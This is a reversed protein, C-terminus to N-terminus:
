IRGKADALLLESRELIFKEYDDGFLSPPCLAASLTADVDGEMQAKYKSPTEGGLKRNDARSLFAFNALCSDPFQVQGSDKLFQRPM